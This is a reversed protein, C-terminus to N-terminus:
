SWTKRANLCHSYSHHHCSRYGCKSLGLSLSLPQATRCTSPNSVHTGLVAGSAVQLFSTPNPMASPWRPHFFTKCPSDWVDLILGATSGIWDFHRGRLPSERHFCCGLFQSPHTVWIFMCQRRWGSKGTFWIFNCKIVRLNCIFPSCHILSFIDIFLGNAEWLTCNIRESRVM